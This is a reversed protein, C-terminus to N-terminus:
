LRFTGMNKFFQMLKTEVKWDNLPESTIGTSFGRFDYNVAVANCKSIQIFTKVFVDNNFYVYIYGSPKSDKHSALQGIMHYFFLIGAKDGYQNVILEIHNRLHHMKSHMDITQSALVQFLTGRHTLIPIHKIENM